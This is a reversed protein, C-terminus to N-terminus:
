SRRARDRWSGQQMALAEVASFRFSKGIHNVLAGDDEVFSAILPTDTDAFLPVKREEIEEDDLPADKDFDFREWRSGMGKREDKRAFGLVRGLYERYYELLKLNFDFGIVCLQSVISQTHPDLTDSPVLSKYYNLEKLVQARKAKLKARQELEIWRCFNADRITEFSPHTRM